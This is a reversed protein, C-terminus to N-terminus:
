RPSMENEPSSVEDATSICPRLPVAKLAAAVCIPGWWWKCRVGNLLAGWRRGVQGNVYGGGVVMCCVYMCVYQFCLHMSVYSCLYMSVHICAYMCVTVCVHVCAYICVYMCVHMCVYCAYVCVCMCVCMYTCVYM